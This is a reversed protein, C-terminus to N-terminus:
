RRTLTTPAITSADQTPELFTVTGLVAMNGLSPMVVDATTILNFSQVGPANMIAYSIWAAHITQGPAALENLMTRLSAEVAGEAEVTDPMLNQITVDVFQKMPALVYCDKVTVPRMTDIYASVALVDTTTPWGDDSARLEDMLFRVTM